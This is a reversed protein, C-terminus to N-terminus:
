RWIKLYKNAILIDEKTFHKNIDKKKKAGKRIPNNTKKFRSNQSNNVNCINIKQWM